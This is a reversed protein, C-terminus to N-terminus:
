RKKFEERSKENALTERALGQWFDAASAVSGSQAPARAKAGDGALGALTKMAEARKRMDGSKILAHAYQFVAQNGGLKLDIARSYVKAADGWRMEKEYIQAQALLVFERTPVPPVGLNEASTLEKLAPGPESLELHKELNKYLVLASNQDGMQAQLTALWATVRMERLGSNPVPELIQARAAHELASTTVKESEDILGLMLEREYSFPSEARVNMLLSRIQDRDATSHALRTLGRSVWLAKAETFNQESLELRGDLATNAPDPKHLATAKKFSAVLDTAMKGLGLDAAAQSLRLLYDFQIAEGSKLIAESRQTYLTLAEYKKGQALLDVISKRFLGALIGNLMTRTEPHTNGKAEGLAVKVADFEPGLTVLSRVHAIIRLDQYRAMPIEAGGNFKLAEGQFFNQASEQTFGGHDGCPILRLRALTAGPSFPYRNITEYFWKRSEDSEAVARGEIEGLRFTARWGSPHSPYKTLFENFIQKARDMQGLQYLAEARNITAPPFDESEDKFHSIAQAYAALAQDYQFRDLYLDGQRLAAFAQIHRDSSHEIVWEYEKSARETQKVQFLGEAQEMHFLWNLKHEPHNAALWEFSTLGKLTEGREMENAALYLKAYVAMESDKSELILSNLIPLAESVLNLKILANARLFRMQDYYPSNKGYDHDFFDITRIVLAAKGQQYLNLALKVYQADKTSEKAGPYTFTADPNSLSIYKPLKIKEHVPLFALLIDKKESLPERCFEALDEIKAKLKASAIQRQAREFNMKEALRKEELQARQTRIATIERLTQGKKPWFDVIFKPPNKERYDFWDMQPNAPRDAGRAFKWTGNMKVGSSTEEFKVSAINPNDISAFQAKWSEEEGLPAGLDTLSLGKFYIQFGRATRTTMPNVGEDINFLIRSHTRFTEFKVSESSYAPLSFFPFSCFLTGTIFVVYLYHKLNRKM